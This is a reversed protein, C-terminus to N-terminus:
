KQTDKMELQFQMGSKSTSDDIEDFENADRLMSRLVRQFFYFESLSLLQRTTPTM